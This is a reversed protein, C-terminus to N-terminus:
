PHPHPHAAAVAQARGRRRRWVAHAAYEAAPILLFPAFLMWVFVYKAYFFSNAAGHLARPLAQFARSDLATLDAHRLAEVPGQAGEPLRVQDLAAHVLALNLRYVVERTLPNGFGGTGMHEAVLTEVTTGSGRPKALKENLAAQLAPLYGRAYAIAPETTRDITRRVARHASYVSGLSGCLLAFVLPVYVYNMRAMWGWPRSDRRLLGRRGAYTVLVAGLALGLAGFVFAALLMKGFGGAASGALERIFPDLEDM